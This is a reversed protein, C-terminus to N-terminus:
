ATDGPSRSPAARQKTDFVWRHSGGMALPRTWGEPMEDPLFDRAQFLRETQSAKKPGASAAGTPKSAGGGVPEEDDADGIPAHGLGLLVMEVGLFMVVLPLCLQLTPIGAPSVHNAEVMAGESFIGALVVVVGVVSGVFFARRWFRRSGM